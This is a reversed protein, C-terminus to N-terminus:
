VVMRLRNPQHHPCIIDGLHHTTKRHFLFVLFFPTLLLAKIDPCFISLSLPFLHFCPVLLILRTGPESKVPLCTDWGVPGRVNTGLVNVLRLYRAGIRLSYINWLIVALSDVVRVGTM